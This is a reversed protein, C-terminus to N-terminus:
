MLARGDAVAAEASIDIIAGVLRQPAPGPLLRGFSKLQRPMGQSGAAADRVRFNAVFVSNGAIALELSTEVASRADPLVPALLAERQLTGAQPLDLLLRCTEDLIVEGTDACYEWVGIGGARVAMDLRERETALQRELSLAETIDTLVLTAGEVVR